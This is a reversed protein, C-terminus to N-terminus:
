VTPQPKKRYMMCYPRTTHQATDTHFYSLHQGKFVCVALCTATHYKSLAFQLPILNDQFHSAVDGPM